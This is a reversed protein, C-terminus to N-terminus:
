SFDYSLSGCKESCCTIYYNNYQIFIYNLDPNNDYYYGCITCYLKQNVFRPPDKYITLMMKALNINSNNYNIKDCKHLFFSIYDIINQSLKM